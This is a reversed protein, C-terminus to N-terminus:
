KRKLVVMIGDGPLIWDLFRLMVGSNTRIARQRKKNGLSMFGFGELMIDFDENKVNYHICYHKCAKDIQHSYVLDDINVRTIYEIDVDITDTFSLKEKLQKTADGNLLYAKSYSSGDESSVETEEITVKDIDIEEQNIVLKKIKVSKLDCKQLPELYTSILREIRCKDGKVSKATFTTRINKQLIEIDDVNVISADIYVIYEKYYYGRLVNDMEDDVITAINNEELESNPTYIDKILASKLEKKRKIDLVKIVEDEALIECMRKRTYNVYGFWELLLSSFSIAIVTQGVSNLAGKFNEDAKSSIIILIIGLLSGIIALGFLAIKNIVYEKKERKRNEQKKKNKFQRM